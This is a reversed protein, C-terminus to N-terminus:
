LGPNRHNVYRALIMWYSPGGALRSCTWSWLTFQVWLWLHTPKLPFCLAPCYPTPWSEAFSRSTSMNVIGSASRYIPDMCCFVLRWSIRGPLYPSCTLCFCLSVAHVCTYTCCTAWTIIFRNWTEDDQHWLQHACGNDGFAVLIEEAFFNSIVDTLDICYLM